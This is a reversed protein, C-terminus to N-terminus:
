NASGPPLYIDPPPPTYLAPDVTIEEACWPCFRFRIPSGYEENSRHATFALMPPEKAQGWPRLLGGTLARMMHDCCSKEIDVRIQQTDPDRGTIRLKM